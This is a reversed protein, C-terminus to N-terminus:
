DQFVTSGNVSDKRTKSVQVSDFVFDLIPRDGKYTAYFNDTDIGYASLLESCSSFLKGDYMFEDLKEFYLRGEEYAILFFGWKLFTKQMKFYDQNRDAVSIAVDFMRNYKDDFAVYRPAGGEDFLLSLLKGKDYDRIVIKSSDSGLTNKLWASFFEIDKMDEEYRTM